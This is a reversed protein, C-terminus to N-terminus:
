NDCGRCFPYRRIYRMMMLVKLVGALGATAETHGINAKVTGIGCVTQKDTKTKLAKKLAQIELPDGLRTGTGHAEYYSLTEAEIDADQWAAVMVAAQEEVNPVTPGGSYGGHKVATGKIVGQIIDRDAIAKDLRKVLLAAVGEAPIYGDAEQDFPKLEGQKSFADMACFAKYKEPHCNINSGAVIAQEIEGTRLAERALHLAVLSSSCATDLTMSPGRIDLFYSVRNSLSSAGNGISMISIITWTPKKLYNLMSMLVVVSMCVQKAGKLDRALRRLTRKRERGEERTM